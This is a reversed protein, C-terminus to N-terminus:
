KQRARLKGFRKVAAVAHSYKESLEQASPTRNAHPRSPVVAGPVHPVHRQGSEISSTAPTDSACGSAAIVFILGVPVVVLLSPRRRIDLPKVGGPWGSM